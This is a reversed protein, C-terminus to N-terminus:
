FLEVRMDKVYFFFFFNALLFIGRGLFMYFGSSGRIEGSFFRGVRILLFYGLGSSGVFSVWFFIYFLLRGCGFVKLFRGVFRVFIFGVRRIVVLWM